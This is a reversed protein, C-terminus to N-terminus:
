HGNDDTITGGVFTSDATRMLAVNAFPLAKNDSASAVTGEVTRQAQLSGFLTMVLCFLLLIQKM